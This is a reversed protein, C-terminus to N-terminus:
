HRDSYRVGSGSVKGLTSVNEACFSTSINSRVPSGVKAQIQPQKINSIVTIHSSSSLATPQYSKVCFHLSQPEM